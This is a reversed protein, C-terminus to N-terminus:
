AWKTLIYFGLEQFVASRPFPHPPLERGLRDALSLKRDMIKKRKRNKEGSLVWSTDLPINRAHALAGFDTQKM